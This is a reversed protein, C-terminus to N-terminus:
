LEARFAVRDSYRNSWPIKDVPVEGGVSKVFKPFADTIFSIDSGVNFSGKREYGLSPPGNYMELYAARVATDRSNASKDKLARVIKALGLEM